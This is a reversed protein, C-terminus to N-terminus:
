RQVELAEAQELLEAAQLRLEEARSLREDRERQWEYMEGLTRAADKRQSGGMLFDSDHVQVVGFHRLLWEHRQDTDGPGDILESNLYVAAWDGAYHIEIKDTM